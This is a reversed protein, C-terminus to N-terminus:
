NTQSSPANQIALAKIVMSIKEAEQTTLDPPLNTIEVILNTRIPIPFVLKNRTASNSSLERSITQNDPKNKSAIVEKEKSGSPKKQPLRNAVSPRYSIPDNKYTIFNELASQLRSRYTRLSDPAVGKGNLNAFRYFLGEIDLERLDNSEEVDLVALVQVAASKWNKITSAKLLGKRSAYDLFEFFSQKSYDEAGVLMLSLKKEM